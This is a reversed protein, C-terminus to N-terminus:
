SILVFILFSDFQIIIKQIYRTDKEAIEYYFLELYHIM